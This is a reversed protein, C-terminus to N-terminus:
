NMSSILSCQLIGAWMDTDHWSSWRELLYPSRPELCWALLGQMPRYLYLTPAVMMGCGGLKSIGASIWSCITTLCLLHIADRFCADM